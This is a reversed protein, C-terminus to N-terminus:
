PSTRSTSQKRSGASARDVPRARQRATRAKAVPATLDCTDPRRATLLFVPYSRGNRQLEHVNNWAADALGTGTLLGVLERPDFGNHPVAGAGHFSGDETVLDALAVWGGPRLMATFTELMHRADDVHHLAMACLILDYTEPPPPTRTLDLLCPTVNRVGAAALKHRVQDLMGQSVDAAVIRGVNGALIFSLTATGCGYEMASWHPGLPVVDAVAAAIAGALALRSPNNDWTVAAQDFHATDM